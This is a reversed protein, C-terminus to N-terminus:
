DFEGFRPIADAIAEIAEHSLRKAAYIITIPTDTQASDTSHSEIPVRTSGMAMAPFRCDARSAVDEKCLFQERRFRQQIGVAM